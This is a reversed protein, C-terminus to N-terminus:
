LVAEVAWVHSIYVGYLSQCQRLAEQLHRAFYDWGVALQNRTKRIVVASADIIPVSMRTRFMREFRATVPKTSCGSLPIRNSLSIEDPTSSPPYM